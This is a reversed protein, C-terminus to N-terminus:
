RNWGVVYSLYAAGVVIGLGIAGEAVRDTDLGGRYRGLTILRLASWGLWRIAEEIVNQM